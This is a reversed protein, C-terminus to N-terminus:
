KRYTTVVREMLKVAAAHALRQEVTMVAHARGDRVETYADWLRQQQRPSLDINAQDLKLDLQEVGNGVWMKIRVGTAEHVANFRDIVWDDSGELLTIVMEVAPESVSRSDQQAAKRAAMFRQIRRTILVVAWGILCGLLLLGVLVILRAM